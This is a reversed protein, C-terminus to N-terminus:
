GEGEILHFQDRLKRLKRTRYWISGFLAVFGAQVGGVVGLLTLIGNNMGTTMDSGEGGYCVACASAPSALAIPAACVLAAVLAGSWPKRM